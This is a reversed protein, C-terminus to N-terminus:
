RPGRINGYAGRRYKSGPPSWGNHWVADFLGPQRSCAFAERELPHGLEEPAPARGNRHILRELRLELPSEMWILKWGHQHLYRLEAERRAGDLVVDEDRHYRAIEDTIDYVLGLGAYGSLETGLQQLAAVNPAPFGHRENWVQRVQAGFGWRWVTRGWKERFQEAISDAAFTKGSGMLGSVAIRLPRRLDLAIGAFDGLPKYLHDGYGHVSV